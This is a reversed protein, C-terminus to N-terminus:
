RCNLGARVSGGTVFIRRYRIGNDLRKILKENNDINAIVSFWRYGICITPRKFDTLAPTLKHLFEYIHVDIVTALFGQFHGPHDTFDRM